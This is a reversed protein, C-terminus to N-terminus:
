SLFERLQRICACVFVGADGESQCLLSHFSILSSHSFVSQPVLFLPKKSVSVTQNSIPQILLVLFM